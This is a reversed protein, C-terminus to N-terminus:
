EVQFNIDVIMQSIGQNTQCILTDPEVTLIHHSDASILISHRRTFVEDTEVMIGNKYLKLQAIFNIGPQLELFKILSSKYLITGMELKQEPDFVWPSLFAKIARELKKLYYGTDVEDKFNVRAHVQLVDYNPNGVSLKIHPSIRARLFTRIRELLALSALPKRVIKYDRYGVKPITIIHLCGASKEGRANTHPNCIVQYIEPFNQLILHEIDWNNLGRNKHALRESIRTFFAPNTEEPRGGFSPYPQEIKKIQTNKKQLAGIKGPALTNVEYAPDSEAVDLVCHVANTRISIIRDFREPFAAAEFKLWHLGKPMRDSWHSADAPVNITVIGTQKLGLTTDSLIQNKSLKEWGKANLYSIYVAPRELINEERIEFFVTLQEPVHLDSIGLYLQGGANYETSFLPFPVSGKDIIKFGFPEIHFFPPIGTEMGTLDLSESAEYDMKINEITPTYPPNPIPEEKNQVQAMIARTYVTPYLNHGFARKPATLTIKLMGDDTKYNPAAVEDYVEPEIKFAIRDQFLDFHMDNVNLVTIWERNKRIALKIKFDEKGEVLSNTLGLYGEYYAKFNEPLGKWEISLSAATLKKYKLESTHVYLNSGAVPNYGFPLFSQKADLLGYDNTIMFAEMGKVVVNVLVKKVMVKQLIAYFSYPYESGLVFRLCPSRANHKELISFSNLPPDGKTLQVKFILEDNQVEFSSIPKSHLGKETYYHVKWDSTNIPTGKLLSNLQDEMKLVVEIHRDGEELQLVPAYIGFGMTATQKRWQPNGFPFWGYNSRTGGEPDAGAFEIELEPLNHFIYPSERSKKSNYIAHVQSVVAKNLYIDRETRYVIDQKNPGKGATFGTGQGLLFQDANRALEPFVYVKDGIMPYARQRLIKMYFFLLHEETLSNFELQVAQFLKLFAIFLALHPPCAQDPYPVQKEKDTDNLYMLGEDFLSQWNQLGEGSFTVAKSFQRTEMYIDSLSRSDLRFSSPDLADISREKRSTGQKFKM